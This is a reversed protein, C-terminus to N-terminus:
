SLVLVMACTRPRPAFRTSTGSAQSAAVALVPLEDIARVVVPGGIVVVVVVVV